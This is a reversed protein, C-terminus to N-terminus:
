NLEVSFLSAVTRRLVVAAVERRYDASGRFDSLMQTQSRVLAAAEDLLARTVAKGELLQEVGKAHVPTTTSAGIVIRASRCAKGDRRVVVGLTLLPRHEAETRRFRAYAGTADGLPPVRIEALVEEPRLATQYYDTFFDDLAIERERAGDTAVVRAGLAMLCTPPDSAPDAYCLNGGLTGQNRVQPNAVQAAMSALMPYHAKVAANTAVDIHRALAGIRLGSKADYVIANMAPVRGLHILQAPTVLRQRLALILATGGAMLRAGEGHEALMCSAERASSPTLLTFDRM